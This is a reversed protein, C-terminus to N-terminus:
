GVRARQVGDRDLTANCAAGFTADGLPFRELDVIDAIQM